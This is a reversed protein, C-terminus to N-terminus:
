KEQNYAWVVSLVWTTIGILIGFIWHYTNSYTPYTDWVSIGISFIATGCFFIFLAWWGCTLITVSGDIILRALSKRWNIEKLKM